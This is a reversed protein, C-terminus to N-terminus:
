RKKGLKKMKNPAYVEMIREIRFRSFCEIVEISGDEMEFVLEDYSIGSRYYWNVIEDYYIMTCEVHSAKNFVVAYHECFEILIRRPLFIMGFFCSAMMTMGMVSKEDILYLIFGVLALIFLLFSPKADLMFEVKRDYPLNYTKLEKSKM